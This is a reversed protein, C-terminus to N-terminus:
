RDFVSDPDTKGSLIDDMVTNEKMWFGAPQSSRQDSGSANPSASVKGM